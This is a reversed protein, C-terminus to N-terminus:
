DTPGQNSGLDLLWSSCPAEADAAVSRPGKENCRTGRKTGRAADPSASGISWKGRYVAPAATGAGTDDPTVEQASERDTTGDLSESTFPEEQPLM